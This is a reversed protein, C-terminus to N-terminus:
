RGGPEGAVDLSHGPFGIREPSELSMQLVTIFRKSFFPVFDIWPITVDRVPAMENKLIIITINNCSGGDECGGSM